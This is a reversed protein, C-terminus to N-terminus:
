LEKALTSIKDSINLWYRKTEEDDESCYKTLEGAALALKYLMSKVGHLCHGHIKGEKFIDDLFDESTRM